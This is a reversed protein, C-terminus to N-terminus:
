IMMGRTDVGECMRCDERCGGGVSEGGGLGEFGRKSGMGRELEM